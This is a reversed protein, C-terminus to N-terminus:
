AASVVTRTLVITRAQPSYRSADSPGCRRRPRIAATADQSVATLRYVLLRRGLPGGVWLHGHGVSERPATRASRALRSGPGPRRLRHRWPSKRFSQVAEVILRNPLWTLRDGDRGDRDDGQVDARELRGQEAEELHQREDQERQRGPDPDVPQARRGIRMAPSRPRAIARPSSGSRRRPRAHEGDPLEVQDANAAPM